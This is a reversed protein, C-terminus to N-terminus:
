PGDLFIPPPDPETGPSRDARPPVGLHRRALALVVLGVAMLALMVDLRDGGAPPAAPPATPAPNTRSPTPPRDGVVLPALRDADGGQYRILRLFTGEFDVVAGPAALDLRAPKSAAGAEAAPYVLCFPDGAPTVAWSEVLPPFTGFAGQRFRRVVRGSVRVKRGQYAEPHDWLQRFSAAAAPGPPAGAIAKRYAALDALNLRDDGAPAPRAALLAALLVVSGLRSL